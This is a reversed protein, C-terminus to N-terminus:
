PPASAQPALLHGGLAREEREPPGPCTWGTSRASGLTNQSTRQESAELTSGRVTGSRFFWAPNNNKWAAVTTKWLCLRPDTM